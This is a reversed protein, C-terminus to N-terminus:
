TIWRIPASQQALHTDGSLQITIMPSPVQATCCQLSNCQLGNLSPCLATSEFCAPRHGTTVCKLFPFPHSRWTYRGGRVRLNLQGQIRRDPMRQSCQVTSCLMRHWSKSLTVENRNQGGVACEDGTGEENGRREEGGRERWKRGGWEGEPETSRTVTEWASCQNSKAEKWEM